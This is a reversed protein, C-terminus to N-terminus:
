YPYRIYKKYNFFLGKIASFFMSVIFAQQVRLKQLHNIRDRIFLLAEIIGKNTKLFSVENRIGYKYKFLNASDIYKYDVGINDKTNHVVISDMVYFAPFKETIRQTFEWDDYWIFFEKIPLGVERIAITNILISVFSATQIRYCGPFKDHFWNWEWSPQPINMRCREGNTWNVASALFGTVEFLPRPNFMRSNILKELADLNPTCDDDMIWIWDAGDECAKKIGWYFGGAGGLNSDLIITKLEPENILWEVTNDTSCNDVVYISQTKFTQNKISAITQKLQQLRNRTVIVAYINM